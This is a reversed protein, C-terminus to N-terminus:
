HLSRPEPGEGGGGEQGGEGGGTGGNRGPLRHERTGLADALRHRAQGPRLPKQQSEHPHWGTLWLLEFEAAIRGDATGAREQWLSAAHLLVERRLPQPHREALANSEGMARLERMATLPDPWTVSIRESDAVPLAFGARQLLAGADRLDAMPSVRPSAGGTVAIEAEMFAARLEALTGGGLMCALFLGDPRLVRNVQLLAGPLDNVWHLSLVSVALDFAGAAFPLFEEDAAVALRGRGAAQRCMGPSLDAHVLTRIGNVGPLLEALTGDHAGLDLALPFDRRVDQLRDALRAGAERKLFDHRHFTAASRDRRRRVLDRDFVRIADHQSM